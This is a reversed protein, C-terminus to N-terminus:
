MPEETTLSGIEGVIVGTRRCWHRRGSLGAFVERISTPESLLGSLLSSLRGGRAASVSVM